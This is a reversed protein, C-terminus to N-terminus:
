RARWRTETHEYSEAEQWDGEWYDSDWSSYRGFRVFNESNGELDTFKIVQYIEGGDHRIGGNAVYEFKGVNEIVLTKREETLMYEVGEGDYDEDVPEFTGDWGQQFRPNDEYYDSLLNYVEVAKIM